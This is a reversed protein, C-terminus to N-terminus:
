KKGLEVRVATLQGEKEKKEKTKQEKSRQKELLQKM